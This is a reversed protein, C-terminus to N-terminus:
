FDVKKSDDGVSVFCEVFEEISWDHLLDSLSHCDSKIRAVVDAATPNEPADGDPWVEDLELTTHGEFELDISSAPGHEIKAM